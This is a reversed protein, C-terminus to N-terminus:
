FPGGSSLRAARYHSIAQCLQDQCLHGHGNGSDTRCSQRQLCGERRRVTKRTRLEDGKGLYLFFARQFTAFAM